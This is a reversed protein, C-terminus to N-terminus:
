YMDSSNIILGKYVFYSLFYKIIDANDKDYLFTSNVLFGFRFKNSYGFAEVLSCVRYLMLSGENKCVLGYEKADKLLDSNKPPNSCQLRAFLSFEGNVFDERFDAPLTGMVFASNVDDIDIGNYWDVEDLSIGVKNMGVSYIKEGLVKSFMDYFRQKIEDGDSEYEESISQIISFKKVLLQSYGVGEKNAIKIIENALWRKYNGGSYGDSSKILAFMEDPSVKLTKIGYKIAEKTNKM